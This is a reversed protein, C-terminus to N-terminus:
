DSSAGIKYPEGVEGGVAEAFDKARELSTFSALQVTPNGNKERTKSIADGCYQSRVDDVDANDLFIPYWQDGSDSLDGCTAKPFEYKSFETSVTGRFSGAEM